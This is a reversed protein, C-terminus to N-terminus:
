QKFIFITDQKSTIYKAGVYFYGDLFSVYAKNNEDSEMLLTIVSDKIDVTVENTKNNINFDSNIFRDDIIIDKYDIGDYVLKIIKNRFKKYKKLGKPKKM